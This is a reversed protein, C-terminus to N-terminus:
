FSNMIFTVIKKHRENILKRTWKIKGTAKVMDQLERQQILSTYSAIKESFPKNGISSNHSGSILLYNGFCDIYGDNILGDNYPPYGAAPNETKPAIHELQPKKIKDFRTPAYGSKGQSELHNEYKWLAFKAVGSNIEGNIVNELKTHNWHDWWWDETTKMSDIRKIIPEIDSGKEEFHFFVDGLRDEMRARTRILFQRFILSELSKCLRRIKDKEAGFKYAKIIFPLAIGYNNSLKALTILSHIDFFNKEDKLFFVKLCECSNELELTFKKIFPIPESSKLEEDIIKTTDSSKLDNFYVKLTYTLISDETIWNELLSISKYVKEFRKKIEQILNNKEEGAHRYISLMFKARIIDLRSPDKGRDNELIFMRAATSEGQVLHTTCSARSLIQLMNTLYSEQKKSLNRNFSSFAEILRQASQTELVANRDTRVQDIIYDRFAQDDYEVTSFRYESQNKLMDNYITDEDKTLKRLVKLRKYVSALFTIVTSLRQQGDIIGLTGNEAGEEFLFHGFHYAAEASNLDHDELDALFQDRHPKEWSYARQYAPVEIKNKKLLERITTSAAMIIRRHTMIAYYFYITCIIRGTKM